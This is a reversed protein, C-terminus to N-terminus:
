GLSSSTSGFGGDEGYFEKIVIQWLANKEVLFRWKWKCLLGINKSLLSGVGLGGKNLDLLICNWKVWSIGKQSDKFGWFVALVAKVLTLRGGISLSNAKWSTLKERFRNIVVSWGNCSNMKKGVPLGLYFFPISDHTANLLKSCEYAQDEAKDADGKRPRIWELKRKKIEMEMDINKHKMEMEM